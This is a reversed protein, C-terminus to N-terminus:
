PSGPGMYDHSPWAASNFAAWDRSGTRGASFNSKMFDRAQEFTARPVRMAGTNNLSLMRYANLYQLAHGSGRANEFGGALDEAGRVQDLTTARNGRIAFNASDESMGQVNDKMDFGSVLWVSGTILSSM